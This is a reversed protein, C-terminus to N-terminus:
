APPRLAQRDPQPAGLRSAVTLADTTMAFMRQSNKLMEGYAADLAILAQSATGGGAGSGQAQERLCSGLKVNTENAAEFLNRWYALSKQSNELAWNFQVNWLELATQANAVSKEVRLACAHADSAAALQTERIKEAGQAMAEVSRLLVTAQQKWADLLFQEPNTTM